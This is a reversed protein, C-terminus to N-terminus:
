VSVPTNRIMEHLESSVTKEVVEWFEVILSEIDEDTLSLQCIFKGVDVLGITSEGYSNFLQDKPVVDFHHNLAEVVSQYLENKRESSIKTKFNTNSLYNEITLSSWIFDFVAPELNLFSEDYREGAEQTLEWILIPACSMQELTTHVAKTLFQSGMLSSIFILPNITLIYPEIKKM